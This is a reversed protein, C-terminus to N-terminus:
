HPTRLKTLESQVAEGGKSCWGPQEEKKLVTEETVGRGWGTGSLYTVGLCGQRRDSKWGEVSQM